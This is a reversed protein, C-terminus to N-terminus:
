KKRKAKIMRDNGNLDKKLIVEFGYDAIMAKTEKGLYQNIEFYLVGNEKLHKTAFLTIARYFVLPDENSVFLALHPEHELVNKAMMVQEDLKVYPPNSVIIDLPTKFSDNNLIDQHLWEITVDLRKANSKAFHLAKESVDMGFVLSSPLQKKLSIPICGTGTGIDLITLQTTHKTFDNKIWNVLEETEPRPILVDNNVKFSLGYFTTQGLIYQLPEQKKLRAVAKKILDEQSNLLREQPTLVFDIRQKNAYYESLRYLFAFIEEQPYVSKLEALVYQKLESLTM